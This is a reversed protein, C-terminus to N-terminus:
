NRLVEILGSNKIVEGWSLKRALELNNRSIKAYLKDDNLLAKVKEVLDQPDGARYLLASKGEELFKERGEVNSAVIPKGAALYELTKRSSKNKVITHTSYPSLCVDMKKLLDVADQHPVVGTFLVSPYADKYEKFRRGAGIVVLQVKDSLYRASELMDEIAIWAEWNGIFGVLKKDPSLAYKTLINNNVPTAFEELDVGNPLLLTKEQLNQPLDQRLEDRIAIIHDALKLALWDFPRTIRARMQRGEVLQEKHSYGHFDYIIHKGWLKLLCLLPALSYGRLIVKNIKTSFLVRLVAASIQFLFLLNGIFGERILPNVAIINDGTIADNTAKQAVIITDIGSRNLERSLHWARTPTAM